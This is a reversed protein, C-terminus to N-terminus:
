SQLEMVGLVEIEATQPFMDFPQVLRITYIASLKGLDRALTSPNCSIYILFQPPHALISRLVQPALGEAPPDLLLTSGPPAWTLTDDLLLAVDGLQYSENPALHKQAAAIAYSSWELGIAQEFRELFRKLFFGSGCYADILLPGRAPLQEGVAKALLEAVSDNTQRFTREDSRDRLTYHGDRPRKKRLEALHANVAQNAIPCKEIPVIVHEDMAFFGIEGDQVHVTIRNRYAFPTPSAVTPEVSVDIKGIRRLSDKVQRQKIELQHEYTAHQYSCGGCRGFVPCPPETRHESAQLVRNLSAESFSKHEKTTKALVTENELVFRVFVVKGDHRAVGKGGFGVDAITLLLPNSEPLPRSM